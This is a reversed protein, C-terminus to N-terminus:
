LNVSQPAAAVGHGGHSLLARDSEFRRNAARCATAKAVQSRARKGPEPHLIRVERALNLAERRVSYVFGSPTPSSPSSGGVVRNWAPYASWAASSASPAAPLPPAVRVRSSRAYPVLARVASSGRQSQCARVSEFRRGGAECAPARSRASSRARPHLRRGRRRHVQPSEFVRGGGQRPPARGVHAVPGHCGRCSDFGSGGREFRPARDLHAVSGHDHLIQNARTSEFWRGGGQRPPARVASSCAM